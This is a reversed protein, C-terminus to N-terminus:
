ADDFISDVLLDILLYDLQTVVDQITDGKLWLSFVDLGSGFTDEIHQELFILVQNTKSGTMGLNNLRTNKELYDPLVVDNYVLALEIMRFTVNNTPIM